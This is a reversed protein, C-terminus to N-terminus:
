RRRPSTTDPERRAFTLKKVQWLDAVTKPPATRGRSSTAAEANVMRLERVKWVQSGGAECNFLVAYVFDRNLDLEKGERRFQISVEQDVASLKSVKQPTQNGIEFDSAKLGGDRVSGIIKQEFYLRHNETLGGRQVNQRITDLQQELKGIKELEGGSRKASAIAKEAEELRGNVWYVFGGAVPLLLLSGLIMAKYLDLNKFVNM